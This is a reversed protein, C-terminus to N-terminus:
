AIIHANIKISQQKRITIKMRGTVPSYFISLNSSRLIKFSVCIQYYPIEFEYGNHIIM